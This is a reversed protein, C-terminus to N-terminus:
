LVKGSNVLQSEDFREKIGRIVVKEGKTEFKDSASRKLLGIGHEASNSGGAERVLQYILDSIAAARGTYQKETWDKPKLLNVHLNGVGLHGFWVSKLDTYQDSLLERLRRIFEAMKELRVAVDHKLTKHPAISESINERLQWLEKAQMQSQSIVADDVWSNNQCLGFFGTIKTEDYPRDFGLLGYVLESNSVPSQQGTHATV